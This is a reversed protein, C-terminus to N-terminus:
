LSEEPVFKTIGNETKAFLEETEFVEGEGFELAEVKVMNFDANIDDPDLYFESLNKIARMATEALTIGKSKVTHKRYPDWYEIEYKYAWKGM